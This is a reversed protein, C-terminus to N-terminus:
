VALFEILDCDEAKIYGGMTRGVKQQFRGYDDLLWIEEVYIEQADPYGSAFSECSYYGGIRKGNKLHFIIWYSQGGKFVYDWAMPVPHVTLKVFRRLWRNQILYSGLWGLGAPILFVAVIALLYFMVANTRVAPMYLLSILWFFIALYFMSFTILEVLYDGLKRRESPILYNYVRAAM